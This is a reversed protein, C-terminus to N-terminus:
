IEFCRYNNKLLVSSSHAQLQLQILTYVLAKMKYLDLIYGTNEFMLSLLWVCRSVGVPLFAPLETCSGAAKVWDCRLM